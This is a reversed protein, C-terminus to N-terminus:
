QDKKNKEWRENVKLKPFYEDPLPRPLKKPLTFVEDYDLWKRQSGEKEYSNLFGDKIMLSIHQTTKLGLLHAADKKTILRQKKKEEV